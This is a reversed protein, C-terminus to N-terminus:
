DHGAAKRISAAILRDRLCVALMATAQEQSLMLARRRPIGLDSLTWVLRMSCLGTEHHPREPSPQSTHATHAAQEHSLLPASLPGTM